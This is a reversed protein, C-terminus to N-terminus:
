DLAGTGNAGGGGINFVTSTGGTNAHIEIGGTTTTGGNSIDGTGINGTATLLVNGGFSVDNGNSIINGLSLTGSTATVQVGWNNSTIDQTTVSTGSIIANGDVTIDQASISGVATISLNGGGTVTLNNSLTCNGPDTIDVDGAPPSAPVSACSTYTTAHATGAIGLMIALALLPTSVKFRM